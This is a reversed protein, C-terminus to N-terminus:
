FDPETEPKENIEAILDDLGDGAAAHILEKRQNLLKRLHKSRQEYVDLELNVEPTILNLIKANEALKIRECLQKYKTSLSLSEKLKELGKSSDRNNCISELEAKITDQLEYFKETAQSRIQAAAAGMDKGIELLETAKEALNEFGPVSDSILKLKTATIEWSGRKKDSGVQQKGVKAAVRADLDDILEASMMLAKDAAQAKAARLIAETNINNEYAIISEINGQIPETVRALTTPLPGLVSVQVPAQYERKTPFIKMYDSFAISFETDDSFLPRLINETTNQWKAHESEWLRAIRENAETAASKIEKILQNASDFYNDTVFHCDGYHICYCDYLERQLVRLSDLETKLANSLHPRISVTNNKKLTDVVSAPLKLDDFKIQVSQRINASISCSLLYHNTM